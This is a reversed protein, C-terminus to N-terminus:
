FAELLEPDRGFWELHGYVDDRSDPYWQLSPLIPSLKFEQSLRGVQHPLDTGRWDRQRTDTGLATRLALSDCLARRHSYLAREPIVM